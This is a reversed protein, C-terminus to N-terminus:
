PGGSGLVKSYFPKYEPIQYEGSNYMSKYDSIAYGDSGGQPEYAAEEITAYSEQDGVTVNKQPIEGLGRQMDLRAQREAQKVKEQFIRAQRSNAAIGREIMMDAIRQKYKAYWEAETLAGDYPLPPIDFQSIETETPPPTYRNIEYYDEPLPVPPANVPLFTHNGLLPNEQAGPYIYMPPASPSVPQHFCVEEVKRTSASKM